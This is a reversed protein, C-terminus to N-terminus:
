RRIRRLEDGLDALWLSSGREISAEYAVFRGDPSLINYGIGDPDDRTLAVARGQNRVPVLWIDLKGNPPSQGTLTVASGDPLWRLAWAAWIIPTDILRAPTSVEGDPTVEVLLIKITYDDEGQAVYATAAIWRGDPSWAIDDFGWVGSVAAVEKAVGEPGDAVFIPAPVNPDDSALASKTTYAVRTGFVGKPLNEESIPFSWVLRSPGQPTTARLEKQDGRKELYLFEDGDLYPTGGPGGLRHGADIHSRTIIREEGGAVPRVILTRGSGGDNPMSYTLYRGDASVTIPLGWRNQPLPGRDPMPGVERAAGGAVPASMIAMRGDLPTSFLVDRGDPSWGWPFEETRAEGLQRAPGGAVPLVRLPTAENSVVVLLHRGDPAFTPSPGKVSAGHPLALRALPRGDYAQVELPANEASGGAAPVVRYPLSPASPGGPVDTVEESPGGAVPARFTRYTNPVDRTQARYHLYQGDSSWDWLYIMDAPDGIPHPTGGNAPIVRIVMRGASPDEAWRRYALWMGDSSLRFNPFAPELSIRQPPGSLRGTRSDFPAAMIANTERSLYLLRTGDPFWVPNQVGSAEILRRTEGGESSVIWISGEEERIQSFVVWGGDPSLAAEFVQLTDAGIIRTLRPEIVPLEEGSRDQASLQSSFLLLAPILSGLALLTHRATRRRAFVPTTPRNM